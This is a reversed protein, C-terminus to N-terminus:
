RALWCPSFFLRGFTPSLEQCRVLPARATEVKKLSYDIGGKTEPSLLYSPQLRRNSWRNKMM